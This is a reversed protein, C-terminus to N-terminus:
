GRRHGPRKRPKDWRFAMWAFLVCVAATLTVAIVMEISGPIPM